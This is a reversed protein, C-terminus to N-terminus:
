NFIYQRTYNCSNRKKKVSNKQFNQTGDLFRMAPMFTGGPPVDTIAMKPKTVHAAQRHAHVALRHTASDNDKNHKTSSTAQTIKL